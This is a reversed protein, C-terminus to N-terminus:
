NRAPAEFLNKQENSSTAVSPPVQSSVAHSQLQQQLKLVEAQLKAYDQASPPPVTNSADVTTGKNDTNSKEKPVAGTNSATDTNSSM